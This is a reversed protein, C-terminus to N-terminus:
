VHLLHGSRDSEHPLHDSPDSPRRDITSSNSQRCCSRYVEVTLPTLWVMSQTYVRRAHVGKRRDFGLVNEIVHGRDHARDSEGTCQEPGDPPDESGPDFSDPMGSELRNGLPDVCHFLLRRFFMVMQRHHDLLPPHLMILDVVLETSRDTSDLAPLIGHEGM